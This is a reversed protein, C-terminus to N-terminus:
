LALQSIELSIMTENVNLLMNKKSTSLDIIIQIDTKLYTFNALVIIPIDSDTCRVHVKCPRNFQCIHHVIKTDAEEQKCSLNYDITKEITNNHRDVKLIYCKDFNVKVTKCNLLVFYEDRKWDDILFRVFSEKFNQSRLLKSFETPRKNRKRLEYQADDEGRQQHEYDKISPKKYKDFVIHVEKRNTVLM